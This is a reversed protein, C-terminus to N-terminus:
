LYSYNINKLLETGDEPGEVSIRNNIPVSVCPVFIEFVFIRRLLHSFNVHKCVGERKLM